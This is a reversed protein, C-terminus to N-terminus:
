ESTQPVPEAPGEVPGDADVTTEPNPKESVERVARDIRRRTRSLLNNFLYTFGIAPLLAALQTWQGFSRLGLGVSSTLGVVPSLSLLASSSEESWGASSVIAGVILPVLWVLFLFLGMSAVALNRQPFVLSFFQLALGFYAVVFVALAIAISYSHEGAGGYAQSVYWPNGLASNPQPSAAHSWCYTAAGLVIACLVVLAIRNLALDDWAPLHARGQKLARRVSKTYEGRSPTITCTLMIAGIVLGYLVFLERFELTSNDPAGGVLLVAWTAMCALAQPKSYSHAREFRMKRVCPILLFFLAPLMYILSFAFWPIAYGFFDITPESDVLIAARPFGMALYPGLFIVFVILGTVGRTGTRRWKFVLSNLLSIAHMLWATLVTIVLIQALNLVGPVGMAVCFLSFPLTCAFLVYERVPAGFFFGLTLELPSMPSVRHFDIIGSERASGVSAGVQTAGMIALLITQLALLFGFTHGTDFGNLMYGGWGILLCLILVVAIAPVLQGRRLRSRAHKVFIPNDLWAIIKNM